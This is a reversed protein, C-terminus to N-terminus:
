LSDIDKWGERQLMMYVRHHGYHVRTAAHGSDLRSRALSRYMYLLVTKNFRGARTRWDYRIGRLSLPM